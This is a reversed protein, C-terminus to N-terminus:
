TLFSSKVLLSKLSVTVKGLSDELPSAGLQLVPRGLWFWCFSLWLNMPVAEVRRGLPSCLRYIFFLPRGVSVVMWLFVGFGGLYGLFCNLILPILSFLIFEMRLLHLFM